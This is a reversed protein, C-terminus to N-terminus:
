RRPQTSAGKPLRIGERRGDSDANQFHRPPFCDCTLLTYFQKRWNWYWRVKCVPSVKHGLRDMQMQLMQMELRTTLFIVQSAGTHWGFPHNGNPLTELNALLGNSYFWFKFNVQVCVLYDLKAVRSIQPWVSYGVQVNQWVNRRVPSGRIREQVIIWKFTETLCLTDKECYNITNICAEGPAWSTLFRGAIRSVQTRDRPQSSGGSLPFAVWELIRAQLIGHVTYDVPNCLTLCSQAVEVNVKM